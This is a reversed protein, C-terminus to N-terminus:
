LCVIYKQCNYTIAWHTRCAEFHQLGTQNLFKFLACYVENRHKFLIFEVCLYWIQWQDPTESKKFNLIFSLCWFPLNCLVQSLVALESWRWVMEVNLCDSPRWIRRWFTRWNQTASTWCSWDSSAKLAEAKNLLMLPWFFRLGGDLNRVTIESKKPKKSTEKSPWVLKSM